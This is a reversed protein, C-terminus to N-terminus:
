DGSVDTFKFLFKQVQVEGEMFSRNSYGEFCGLFRFLRRTSERVDAENMNLDPMEGNSSIELPEGRAAMQDFGYKAWSEIAEVLRRHDFYASAMAPTSDAAPGFLSTETPKLMSRTHDESIGFILLNPSVAVHPIISKDLELEAPIPLFMMESGDLEKRQLEPYQFSAM